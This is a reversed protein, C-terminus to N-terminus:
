AKGEEELVPLTFGVRTGGEPRNEAWMRGGHAGIISNSIALGMGTGGSKWTALPEFISGIIDEDIGPGSDEVWAKVQNGEHATGFQVDYSELATDKMAEAANMALNVLVQQLQVRNGSVMPGSPSCGTRLEVKRMVFESHLLLVTDEVLANIDVPRHALKQERYIERLGQIVESARKADGVIEGMIALMEDHDCEGKSIALEGAQASSLIGTLPQNLEHAISGTMQEMRAVRTVRALAERQRHAEEEGEKLATVDVLTGVVFEIEEDENRIPNLHIQIWVSAAKVNQLDLDEVTQQGIYEIPPLIVNEGAFAKKVEDALGLNRLQDDNLLNYNQNVEAVMDDDFGWLKKWASNVQINKGELTVLTMALPSQEMLSRFRWESRLTKERAQKRETIDAIAGLSRFPKGTEDRVTRGRVNFWRYEGGSRTRFRYDRDYPIDKEFHEDVAAKVGQLDDPHIMEWFEDINNWEEGPPYGLLEKATDSLYVRGSGLDWDWLGIGSAEVVLEYRERSKRLDEEATKRDTIDSISGAMRVPKGNEDWLAQGRAYFWRYEGTRSKIRFDERYPTREELHKEVAARVSQMDDPHVKEWFDDTTSWPEDAAYGLLEKLRGSYFVTGSSIDWDWIGAASGRVALEYREKSERLTKEARRRETVDHVSGVLHTCIGEENVVPAITVDGIKEGAPYVSTEEWRVTRKERIAKRYNDRVLQISPEPIVEAICKGVVQENTLGTTALFAHNVSVFRFEEDPEVRIYFLVDGVTDFILSLRKDNEQCEAPREKVHEEMHQQTQRLRTHSRVRALVEQEQFPKTIYDIGGAKFGQERADADQLASIFIVPVDRTREDEKLRRCVEFGNMERMRVDAVILGPPRALSSDVALHPNGTSRVRYGERELIETLLRLSPIDDDIVLIEVEAGM